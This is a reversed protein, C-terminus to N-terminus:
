ETAVLATKAEHEALLEEALQVIMKRLPTTADSFALHITNRSVKPRKAAVRNHLEGILGYASLQEYISHM